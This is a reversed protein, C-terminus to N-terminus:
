ASFYEIILKLEDELSFRGYNVGSNQDKIKDINPKRKRMDDFDQGYVQSYPIHVIESNSGTLDKIKKALGNISIEEDSGVNFIHGIAKQSNMLDILINTVNGVGGFCRTQEGDGYVTMPSGDLAQKVLRPVVMGYAGAQRPGIVNFLRVVIVPLQKERFYALGLFEDSGKSLGYGWRTNYASGYIRDDEEKFPIKENKGYVESSSTILVPIKRGSALALELVNKTGDINILFSELPKEMVTKVGVAAALHYIEDVKGITEALLNKDELVDGRIFTFRDRYEEKNKILDINNQSGTSLNDFVFVENGKRLLKEALHSGIFGAGGTILIKKSM